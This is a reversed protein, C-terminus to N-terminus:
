LPTDIRGQQGQEQVPANLPQRMNRQRPRPRTNSPAKKEQAREGELKIWKKDRTEWMNSQVASKAKRFDGEHSRYIAQNSKKLEKRLSKPLKNKAITFKTSPSPSSRHSDICFVELRIKKSEGGAVALKGDQRTVQQNASVLMFPGAAGLRQPAKEPDGKPVFFLGDSDFTATTRGTNKVEVVMAGNTNGDYKVFRIKLNEASGKAEPMAVFRDALATTTSAAVLLFTVVFVQRIYQLM